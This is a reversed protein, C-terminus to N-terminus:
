TDRVIGSKLRSERLVDNAGTMLGGGGEVLRKGIAWGLKSASMRTEFYPQTSGSRHDDRVYVWLQGTRTKRNGQSLV